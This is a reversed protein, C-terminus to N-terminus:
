QRSASKGMAEGVTKIANTTASMLMNFEQSAVTFDTTTSPDSKTIKNALDNMEDALADLKKGLADAMARLWSGGGRGGNERIEKVEPSQALNDLIQHLADETDQQQTQIDALGARTEQGLASISDRMGSLGGAIDGTQASFGATELDIVSQPLNLREGMGQLLQQGMGAFIQTGLQAALGGVPGLAVTSLMSISSLNIGFM